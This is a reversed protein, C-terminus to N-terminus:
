LADVYLIKEHLARNKRPADDDEMGSSAVLIVADQPALHQATQSLDDVIAQIADNTMNCLGGIGTGNIELIHFQNRGEVQAILVDFPAICFLPQQSPDRLRMSTRAQIALILDRDQRERFSRHDALEHGLMPSVAILTDLSVRLSDDNM